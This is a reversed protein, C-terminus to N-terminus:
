AGAQASAVPKVTPASEPDIAQKLAPHDESHITLKSGDKFTLEVGTAEQIGTKCLTGKIYDELTM